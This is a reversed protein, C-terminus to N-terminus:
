SDRCYETTLGAECLLIVMELSGYAAAWNLLTQGQADTGEVDMHAALAKAVVEVKGTRIADVVAEIKDPSSPVSLSRSTAKQLLLCM